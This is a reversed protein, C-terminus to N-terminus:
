RIRINGGEITTTVPADQATGPQTDFLLTTGSANWLEIRFGEAPGDTATIRFRVAAGNLTGIGWFQARGGSAVLM